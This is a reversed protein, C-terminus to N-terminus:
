KKWTLILDNYGIYLLEHYLAKFESPTAHRSEKAYDPSCVSHQGIHAYCGFGTPTERCEPFYAFVDNAFAEFEEHVLFVVKTM